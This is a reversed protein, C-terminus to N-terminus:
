ESKNFNQPLGQANKLLRWDAWDQLVVMTESRAIYCKCGAKTAEDMFEVQEVSLKDNGAKVECWISKGYPDYGIIDPVGKRGIFKRGRVALNNNRWVTCGDKQLMWIAWKTLENSNM